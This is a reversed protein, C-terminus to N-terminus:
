HFYLKKLPQLFAFLFLSRVMGEFKWEDQLITQLLFRNESAHIGNACNYSHWHNIVQISPFSALKRQWILGLNLMSRPWCLLCSISKAFLGPAWSVITVMDITKKITRALFSLWLQSPLSPINNRVRFTKDNDRNRRKPCRERILRGDHWIFISRRFFM